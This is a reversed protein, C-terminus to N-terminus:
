SSTRTSIFVSYMIGQFGSTFMQPSGMQFECDLQLKLQKTDESLLNLSTM